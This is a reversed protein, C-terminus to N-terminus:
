VYQTPNSLRGCPWHSHLPHERPFSFDYVNFCKKKKTSATWFLEVYFLTMAFLILISIPKKTKGTCFIENEYSFEKMYRHRRSPHRGSSGGAKAERAAARRHVLQDRRSHRSGLLSNTPKGVFFISRTTRLADRTAHRPAGDSQRMELGPLSTRLQIPPTEDFRSRQVPVIHANGSSFILINKNPAGQIEEYGQKANSFIYM